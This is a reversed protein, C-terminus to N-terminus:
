IRFFVWRRSVFYTFIAVGVLVCFLGIAYHVNSWQLLLHYASENVLFGFLSLVFFRALTRALSNQHNRFTLFFHGSFSVFFALLWGGINSVLPTIQLWEVLAIVTVFHTVAAACGVAIFRLIEKHGSRDVVRNM